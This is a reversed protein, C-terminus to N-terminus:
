VLLRVVHSCGYGSNGPYAHRQELMGGLAEAEEVHSLCRTAGYLDGEDGEPQEYAWTASKLPDSSQLLGGFANIGVNTSPLLGGVANSLFVSFPANDTPNVSGVSAGAPGRPRVTSQSVESVTLDIAFAKASTELQRAIKKLKKIEKEKDKKEKFKLSKKL